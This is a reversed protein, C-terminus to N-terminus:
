WHTANAEEINIASPFIINVAEQPNCSINWTCETSNPYNSPWGPSTVTGSTLTM